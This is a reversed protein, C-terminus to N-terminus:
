IGRSISHERVNNKENVEEKGLGQIPKNTNLRNMDMDYLSINKYQPNLVALGEQQTGEHEFKVKVVNGKELSKIINDKYEPKDFVLNSKEVIEPTNIGYNKYFNQYLYNGKETKEENFNLKVFVPERENSKPNLFETKVARGELLNIAEKATFSQDRSINFNHSITENEKQLVADYSNLFVGGKDSKNFNLTFEVKNGPLTKDSTTKIQFQKEPAKIGAQLENHIQEDEGFGLYKIQNKLYAVQHFDKQQNNEMIEKKSNILQEYYKIDNPNEVDDWYGYVLDDIGKLLSPTEILTTYTFHNYGVSHFESKIANLYSEESTYSVVENSDKFTLQGVIEKSNNQRVQDMVKNILEKRWNYPKVEKKLLEEETIRLENEWGENKIEFVYKEEKLGKYEVKFIGGLGNEMEYHKGIDFGLHNDKGKSYKEVEKEIEQKNMGHSLETPESLEEKWTHALYINKERENKIIFHYLNLKDILMYTTDKEFGVRKLHNLADKKLEFFNQNVVNEGEFQTLEYNKEAGYKPSSEKFIKLFKKEKTTLEKKEDMKFNEISTNQMENIFRKYEKSNKIVQKELWPIKVEDMNRLNKNNNIYDAKYEKTLDQKPEEVSDLLGQNLFSHIIKEGNESRFLIADSINYKSNKMNENIRNIVAPDMQNGYLICTVGGYDSLKEIIFDSINGRPLVFKGVIALQNNLILMEMKDSIGFKQTNLYEAVEKASSIKTPNYNEVFVHKSFSYAKVDMRSKPEIGYNFLYDQSNYVLYQGTRLNIIIGDNVKIDTHELSKKLANLSVRDAMSAKLQGSPHNHVFTIAEPKLKLINGILMRNDVLTADLTGSSIHQVFYGKDEFHYVLFAHEVAEDELSKFLWAVDYHDNIKENGLFQLYNNEVWRREVLAFDNNEVKDGSERLLNFKPRDDNTDYLKFPITQGTSTKAYKTNEDEKFEFNTNLNKIYKETEEYILAERFKGDSTGKYVKVSEKKYIDGRYEDKEGTKERIEIKEQSTGEWIDDVITFKVYYKPDSFMEHIQNFSYTEKSLALKPYKKFLDEKFTTFEFNPDKGFRYIEGDNYLRIALKKRDKYFDYKSRLLDVINLADQLSNFEKKKFNFEDSYQQYEGIEFEVKM